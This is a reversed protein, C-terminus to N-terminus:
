VGARDSGGTEPRGEIEKPFMDRFYVTNKIGVIIMNPALGMASVYEIASASNVFLAEFDSDLIYLVPYRDQTKEYGDPVRILLKRDENQVNSHIQIEQGYIIERQAM